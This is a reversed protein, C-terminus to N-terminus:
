RGCARHSFLRPKQRSPQGSACAIGAVLSIAALM